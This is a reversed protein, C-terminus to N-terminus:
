PHMIELMEETFSVREVRVDAVPVRCAHCRKREHEFAGIDQARGREVRWVMTTSWLGWFAADSLGVGRTATSGVMGAGVAIGVTLGEGGVVVVM